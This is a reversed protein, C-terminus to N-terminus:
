TICAWSKSLFSFELAHRRAIRAGGWTREIKGEGELSVLDRRITMDSVQFRRMLQEVTAEGEEALISLIQNQRKSLSNM